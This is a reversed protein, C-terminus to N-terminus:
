TWRVFHTGKLDLTDTVDLNLYTEKDGNYVIKTVIKNLINKKVRDVFVIKTHLINVM